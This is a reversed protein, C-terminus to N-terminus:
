PTSRRSWRRIWAFPVESAPAGHALKSLRYAYGLLSNIAPLLAWREEGPDILDQCVESLLQDWAAAGPASSVQRGRHKVRLPCRPRLRGRWDRQVGHSRGLVSLFGMCLSGMVFFWPCKPANIDTECDIGRALSPAESILATDNRPTHRM